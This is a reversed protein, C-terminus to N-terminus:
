YQYKIIEEAIMKCEEIPKTFEKGFSKNFISFVEDALEETSNFEKIVEFIRQSEFYYEDELLPYIDAPNWKNIIEVIKNKM